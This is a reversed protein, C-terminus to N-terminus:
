SRGLSSCIQGCTLLSLPRLMCCWTVRVSLPCLWTDTSDAICNISCISFVRVGRCIGTCRTEAEGGDAAARRAPPPPSGQGCVGADRAAGGADAGRCAGGRAAAAAAACAGTCAGCTLCGGVACCGSCRSSSSSSLMDAPAPCECPSMFLIGCCRLRPRSRSPLPLRLQLRIRGCLKRTTSLWTLAHQKKRRLTAASRVARVRCPFPASFACGLARLHLSM